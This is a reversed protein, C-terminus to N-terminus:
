ANATRSRAKKAFTMLQAALKEAGKPELSIATCGETAMGLFITDDLNIEACGFNETVMLEDVANDVCKYIVKPM